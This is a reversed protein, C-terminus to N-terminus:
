VAALCTDLAIAFAEPADLMLWHGTDPITVATLAPRLIHWSFPLNNSPALIAQAQTRPAALYRDLSDIARFTFLERATGLLAEQPAAALRALIQAHTEPTGGALANHFSGTLLSRWNETELEAQMPAIQAEYMDPPMQTCDIPPDVLILPSIRHPVAAATAVAVCAGYSHGVLAIQDLNLAELVAVLDTACAAPSYDRDAPATSAGHGRLDIAIARRTRAAHALQAEWLDTSCAMGHVFVVPSRPSTPTSAPRNAELLHISGNPAAITM